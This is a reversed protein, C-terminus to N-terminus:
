LSSSPPSIGLTQKLLSEGVMGVERSGKKVVAMKTKNLCLVKFAERPTIDSRIFLPPEYSLDKAKVAQWIKYTTWQTTRCLHILKDVDLFGM